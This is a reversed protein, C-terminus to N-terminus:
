IGVSERLVVSQAVGLGGVASIQIEVRAVARAVESLRELERFEAPARNEIRAIEGVNWLYLLGVVFKQRQAVQLQFKHFVVFVKRRFHRFRSEAVPFLRDAIVAVLRIRVVAPFNGRSAVNECFSRAAIANLRPPKAPVRRYPPNRGTKGGRKKLKEPRGIKKAGVSPPYATLPREPIRLM